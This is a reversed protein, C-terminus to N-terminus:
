KQIEDLIDMFKFITKSTISPYEKTKYNSVTTINSIINNWETYTKLIHYSKTLLIFLNEAIEDVIEKNNAQKIKENLINQINIIINIINENKVAGEKMLNIYFTTIARRKENTKNNDCFKDYDDNPSCYEIKIFHNLYISFQNQLITKMFDFSDMLIKYLKAYLNSYFANGSAITFIIDGIKEFEESNNNKYLIDIEEKIQTFLKDFNKETLKNLYKRINEINSDIGEKKKIDTSKFNKIINWDDNNLNNNIHKNKQNHNENKKPFSPTKIYDEAGVKSALETIIKITNDSLSLNIGDFIIKEIDQISYRKISIM